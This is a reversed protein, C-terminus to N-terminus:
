LNYKFHNDLSKNIKLNNYINLFVKKRDYKNDPVDNLNKNVVNTVKIFPMKQNFQFAYAKMNNLRQNILYIQRQINSKCIQDYIQHNRKLVKLSSLPDSYFGDFKFITEDDNEEEELQKLSKKENSLPRNLVNVSINALPSNPNKYRKNNYYFHKLVKKDSKNIVVPKNVIPPLEDYNKLFNKQNVGYYNSLSVDIDCKHKKLSSKNYSSHSLNNIILEPQLSLHSSLSVSNSKPHFLSHNVNYLM